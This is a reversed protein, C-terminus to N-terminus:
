FCAIRLMETLWRAHGFLVRSGFGTGGSAVSVL